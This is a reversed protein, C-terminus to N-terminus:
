AGISLDMHVSKNVFLMFIHKSGIEGQHLLTFAQDEIPMLFISEALLTFVPLM